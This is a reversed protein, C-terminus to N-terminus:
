LLLRVWHATWVDAIFAPGFSRATNFSAGTYAMQLLCVIRNRHTLTRNFFSLFFQWMAYSFTLSPFAFYLQNLYSCQLQLLLPPHSLSYLVSVYRCDVTHTLFFGGRLNESM